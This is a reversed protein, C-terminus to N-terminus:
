SVGSVEQYERSARRNWTMLDDEWGEDRREIRDCLESYRAIEADTPWTPRWREPIAM